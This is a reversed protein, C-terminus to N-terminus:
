LNKNIYIAIEKFTKGSDNMGALTDVVDNESGTGRLISPVKSIGKIARWNDIFGPSKAMNIRAGVVECAVGLCCHGIKGDDDMMERLSGVAQNYKGSRLAKVWAKKFAIPLKKKKEATQAMSNIIITWLSM